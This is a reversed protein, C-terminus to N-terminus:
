KLSKKFTDGFVYRKRSGIFVFERIGSSAWIIVKEPEQGYHEKCYKVEESTPAM